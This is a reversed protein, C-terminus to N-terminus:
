IKRKVAEVVAKDLRLPVNKAETDFLRIVVPEGEGDAVEYRDLRNEWCIVESHLRGTPIHRLMKGEPAKIRIRVM